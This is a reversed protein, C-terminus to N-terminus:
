TALSGPKHTINFPELHFYNSEGTYMAQFWLGPSSSSERRSWFHGPLAADPLTPISVLGWSHAKILNEGTLTLTEDKRSWTALSFSSHKHVWCCNVNGPRRTTEPHTKSPTGDPSETTSRPFKLPLTPLPMMVHLPIFFAKELRFGLPTRNNSKYAPYQIDIVFM